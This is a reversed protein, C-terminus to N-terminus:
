VVSMLAIDFLRRAWGSGFRPWGSLSIYHDLRAKAFSAALDKGQGHSQKFLLNARGPGQNIACDFYLLRIDEPLTDIGYKDWFERHYIDIADERTLNKIDVEPFARKSIGFNTEGGPDLPNNSYGAEYRLIIEVAENFNMTQPSVKRPMWDHEIKIM